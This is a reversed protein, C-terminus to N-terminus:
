KVLHWMTARGQGARAIHGLKELQALDSRLTRDTPPNDLTQLIHNISCIETKALIALIQQQRPTIEHHEKRKRQNKYFIVVFTSGRELYEPEPAGIAACESLIEQTGTGISEIIGTKYLVKAINANRPFSEHTQKLDSLTIGRPLTGYNTIELRDTYLMFSISGSDDRYNRHSLANVMAERVARTSYEPHDKRALKGPIFESAISMHRMLFNEAEDLLHFINGHIIRSDLLESKSSGKFKALRLISQPFYSEIDKCFLIGAANTLKGNKLLAFTQLASKADNTALTAKVRGSAISKNLAMLIQNEDLNEISLHEAIEADWPHMVNARDLLLNQYHQQPMLRTSTGLRWFPKASFVYPMSSPTPTVSLAIVYRNKEVLVANVDVQIPPEIKTIMNAIDLHTQDTVEQGVIRGDDKVGFLVTGGSKNLFACLTEFAPKLQGTSAKFELNDSEGESILTKIQEINM